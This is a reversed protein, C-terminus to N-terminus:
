QNNTLQSPHNIEVQSVLAQIHMSFGFSSELIIPSKGIVLIIGTGSPRYFLLANNYGSGFLLSPGRLSEQSLHLSIKKHQKM